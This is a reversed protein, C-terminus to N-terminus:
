HHGTDARGNIYICIYIYIYIYVCIHITLAKWLLKTWDPIEEKILRVLDQSALAEILMMSCNLSVKFGRLISSMINGLPKPPGM